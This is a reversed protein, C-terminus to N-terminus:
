AKELAADNLLYFSWIGAFPRPVKCEGRTIAVNKEAGPKPPTRLPGLPAAGIARGPSWLTAAAAAALAAAKLLLETVMVGLLWAAEATGWGGM